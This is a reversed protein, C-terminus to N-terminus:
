GRDRPSPSTYLLCIWYKESGRWMEIAKNYPIVIVIYISLATLVLLIGVGLLGSKYSLLEKIIAKASFEGGAVISM